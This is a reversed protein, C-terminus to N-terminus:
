VMYIPNFGTDLMKKNDVILGKVRKNYCSYIWAPKGKLFICLFDTFLRLAIIPVKINM